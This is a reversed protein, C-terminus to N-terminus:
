SIPPHPSVLPTAKASRRNLREQAAEVRFAGLADIPTIVEKKTGRKVLTWPIFTELKVGGAPNPTKTNVPNGTIRGQGTRPM